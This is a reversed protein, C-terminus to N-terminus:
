FITIDLDQNRIVFQDGTQIVKSVTFPGHYLLNGGSSADYVGLHTITGWNSGAIPFEIDAANSTSGAVPAVFTAPQRAYAIGSVETGTDDETPDTLFLGIYVTTPATFPTNRLTHNLIANELYTSISPM